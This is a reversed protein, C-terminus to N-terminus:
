RVWWPRNAYSRCVISCASSVNGCRASGASCDTLWLGNLSRVRRTSQILACRALGSVAAAANSGCHALGESQCIPVWKAERETKHENVKAAKKSPIPTLLLALMPHPHPYTCRDVFIPFKVCKQIIFIPKFANCPPTSWWANFM